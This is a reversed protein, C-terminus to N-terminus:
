SLPCPQCVEVMFKPPRTLLSHFLEMTAENVHSGDGGWTVGPVMQFNEYLNVETRYIIQHLETFTPYPSWGADQPPPSDYSVNMLALSCLWKAQLSQALCLAFSAVERPGTIHKFRELHPTSNVRFMIDFDADGFCVGGTSCCCRGLPTRSPAHPIVVGDDEATLRRAPPM